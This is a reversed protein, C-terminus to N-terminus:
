MSSKKGALAQESIATIRGDEIAVNRIADLGTEPDIVRGGQLVLPYITDMAAPSSASSFILLLSVFFKISTASLFRNEPQSLLSM